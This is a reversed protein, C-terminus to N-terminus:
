GNHTEKRSEEVMVEGLVRMGIMMDTLVRLSNWFGISRYLQRMEFKLQAMDLETRPRFDDFGAM